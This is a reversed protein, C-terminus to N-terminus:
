PQQQEPITRFLAYYKPQGAAQIGLALTDHQHFLWLSYHSQYRYTCFVAPIHHSYHASVRVPRSDHVAPAVSFMVYLLLDRM